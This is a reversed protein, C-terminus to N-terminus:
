CHWCLTSPQSGQSRDSQHGMCRCLMIHVAPTPTLELRSFASREAAHCSWAGDCRQLHITTKIGAGTVRKLVGFLLWASAPGWCSRGYTVGSENLVAAPVEVLGESAAVEAITGPRWLRVRNSKFDLDADFLSLMQLLVPFLM